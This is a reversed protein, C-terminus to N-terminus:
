ESGRVLSDDVIILNKGRFESEIPSLKRRVSKQRLAQNPLIFTRGVFRNKILATVYPKGLKNALTAAAINSTQPLGNAQLEM